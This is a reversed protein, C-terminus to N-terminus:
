ASELPLLVISVQVATPGGSLNTVAIYLNTTQPTNSNAGVRNQWNWSYPATDLVVDTIINNAYEAAPPADMARSADISMAILNGYIRVECPGTATMSILQFSKATLNLTSYSTSGANLLPSVYTATQATLAASSAGSSAPSVITTNTVTSGGGLGNNSPLPLVRRRPVNADGDNFQRLTDPGANVPPLPSRIWPNVKFSNKQGPMEQVPPLALPAQTPAFGAPSDKRITDRLAPM